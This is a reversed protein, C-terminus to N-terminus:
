KLVGDVQSRVDDSVASIGGYIQSSKVDRANSKLFASTPSSLTKPDTLLMVGGKSGTVAGGGLADPFNTGTAIGAYSATGWWFDIGYEAIAVATAYRNAGALRVVPMTVPPLANLSKMVAASVASTSGAIYVESISLSTIAASCEPALNETRTLLVPYGQRYAFPSLALADAFLDGRAVFAKKAFTSGKLRSIESAVAASTAYRNVGAVRAVTYGAKTLSTAIPTPLTPTGGILVVKRAGLRKLEAFVESSVGSKRTLLIPSGYAGALGSASLADPFDEGTAMVVTACADDAYASQSLKVATKYRDDGALRSTAIWVPTRSTAYQLSYAGSGSFARAEIYYTGPTTADLVAREPYALDNSWAVPAGTPSYIYLDFDTDAGGSLTVDFRDGATLVVSYVDNANTLLNLFGQVSGTMVSFPVASSRTQWTGVPVDTVSWDLTYAGDGTAAHAVLYYTGAGGSPVDYLFAESSANGASGGIPLDLGVSTSGPAYLYLDFDTGAAGTLAVQLRKGEALSLRFVDDSDTTCDLTDGFSNSSPVIGPISDDPGSPVPCTSWAINYLGTGAAADIALHYNGDAGSPVDFTLKKPYGDGLTGAMAYSANADTTYPEYLYADCSLQAEGTLVVTLRTGGTLAVTYVDTPDSTFSLAGAFPTAPIAVAGSITDDSVLPSIAALGLDRVGDADAFTKGYLSAAVKNTAVSTDFVSTETAAVSLPVIGMVLATAM